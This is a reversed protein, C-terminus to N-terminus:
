RVVVTQRQVVQVQGEGSPADVIGLSGSAQTCVGTCVWNVHYKFTATVKFVGGPEFKSTKEYAYQCPSVEDDGMGDVWVRGATYCNVTDPGMDWAVRDPEATVTVTTGGATVSKTLTTWQAAPVWM